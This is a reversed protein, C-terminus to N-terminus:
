KKNGGKQFDMRGRDPFEQAYRVSYKGGPLKISEKAVPYYTNCNRFKKGNVEYEFKIGKGLAFVSCFDITTGTVYQPKRLMAGEILYERGVYFFLAFLFLLILINITKRGKRGRRLLRILNYIIGGIILILLITKVVESALLEEDTVINLFM